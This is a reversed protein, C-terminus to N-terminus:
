ASSPCAGGTNDSPSYRTPVVELRMASKGTITTHPGLGGWQASTLFPLWDYEYSVIVEVTDGVTPANTSTGDSAKYFCINVQTAHSAQQTGKVCGRQEVTEAQQLIYDQLTSGAGSSCALRSAPNNNVAAMRAGENALHTNDIWYNMAKGFDIMGLLLLLLWPLVLAMEVM